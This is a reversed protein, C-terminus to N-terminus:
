VNTQEKTTKGVTVVPVSGSRDILVGSATNMVGNAAQTNYVTVTGSNRTVVGDNYTVTGGSDNYTVTGYNRTVTGYNWTVTGSNRLIRGYNAKITGLVVAKYEGSRIKGVKASKRVLNSKAWAKLAARAASEAKETDYWEPLNRQYGDFDVRYQWQSLPLSYDGYPPVVEFPVINIDGRVNTERLGFEAIIERHSDTQESWHVTHGPTLVGSMPECM